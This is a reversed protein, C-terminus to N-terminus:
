IFNCPEDDSTASHGHGSFNGYMFSRVFHYITCSAVDTVFSSEFSYDSSIQTVTYWQGNNYGSLRITYYYHVNCAIHGVGQSTQYPATGYIPPSAADTTCADHARAVGGSSGFAVAVCALMLTALAYGRASDPLRVVNRSGIM